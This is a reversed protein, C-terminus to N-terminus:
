VYIGKSALKDVTHQVLEGLVWCFREDNECDLPPAKFQEEIQRIWVAAHALEHTVIGAGLYPPALRVLAVLPDNMMHFRHCIGCTNHFEGYKKKKPSRLVNDYQSAASRLASIKDYVIVRVACDKREGHITITFDALM